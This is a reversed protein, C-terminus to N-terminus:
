RQLRRRNTGRTPEETLPDAPWPHKPYRGRMQSRVQQYPGAWFSALDGTVALPRGAPSLLHVTVKVGGVSPTQECGFMEQLKVALVPREASYDLRVARGSPVTLTEPAVEDLRVQWPVLNRLCSAVDIKEVHARKRARGLHPQLWSLDALLAEDSVEPWPQGLYRHCFRLRQRLATAGDTWRLLSLGQSRLGEEVAAAVQAANPSVLPASAVTIAGMRRVSRAVVEAARADWRIEEYTEERGLQRALSGDLSVALRIRAASQGASRDAAAIALWPSGALSSHSDLVAGSGSVTLWQQGQKMAIREPYAFAVITAAAEEDPLSPQALHSPLQRRLRDVEQRWARDPQSRKSRWLAVLDDTHSRQELSLLAVVQAAKDSGVLSAGEMLARGLRPHVGIKALRRGMETVRGEGDLIRLAQLQQTAARLPGPEPQEPLALEPVPTGWVASQLVLGSLDSTAIDPQPQANRRAHEAESWARWVVGPGTRGARGARQATAARSALVTTLGPLGRAHDVVPRRALGADVVISIGPVTLSSEAIDTSLVVRRQGSTLAADQQSQPATGHLACVRADVDALLQAVQKIEAAGPLFCLVDGEDEDLARRVLHAVHALLNRDVRLGQPPAISMRPPEWHVTVPWSQPQCDIVPASELRQRWLRIDATASAAVIALEPRLVSRTELLFALATDTDLHREHCEDLMVVDVDALEQDSLLRALLVGGTVVTIVTESSTQSDGRIQYGVRRGVREGLLSAMRRAAARAALRRPEVVLVRRRVSGPEVLGALALPALTTKGTGPPAVLLASGASEVASVVQPLVERMPLDPLTLTHPM